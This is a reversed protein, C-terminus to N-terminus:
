EALQLVSQQKFERAWSLWYWLIEHTELWPDKELLRKQYFYVNVASRSHFAYSPCLDLLHFHDLLDLRSCIQSLLWQHAFPEHFSFDKRIELLRNKITQM